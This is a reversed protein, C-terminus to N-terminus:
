LRGEKYSLLNHMGKKSVSNIQCSPSNKRHKNHIGLRVMSYLNQKYKENLTPDIEPPKPTPM